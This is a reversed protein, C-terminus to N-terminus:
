NVETFGLCKMRISDDMPYSCLSLDESSRFGLDYVRDGKIDVVKSNSVGVLLSASALGILLFLSLGYMLTKNM